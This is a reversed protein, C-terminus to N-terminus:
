VKTIFGLKKFGKDMDKMLFEGRGHNLYFYFWNPTPPRPTIQAYSAHTEYTVPKGEFNPSTAGPANVVFAAYDMMNGIYLAKGLKTPIPPEKVPAGRPSRPPIQDQMIPSITTGGGAIARKLEAPVPTNSITWARNFSGTWWPSVYQLGYHVEVAAYSVAEEVIEELDDALHKLDRPM